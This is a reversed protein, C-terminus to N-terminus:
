SRSKLLTSELYDVAEDAIAVLAESQEPIDHMRGSVVDALEQRFRLLLENAHRPGRVLQAEHALEYRRTLAKIKKQVGLM